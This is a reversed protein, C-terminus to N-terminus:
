KMEKRLKWIKTKEWFERLENKVKRDAGKEEM